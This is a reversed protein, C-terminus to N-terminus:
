QVIEWGQALGTSALPRILGQVRQARLCARVRKLMVDFLLRDEAALGRAMLHHTIERPTPPASAGRLVELVIRTMAGKFQPDRHPVSKARIKRINITPDFIRIAADIHELESTLRQLTLRAKGIKGSIEGYKRTLAHLAQQNDVGIPVVGNSSGM